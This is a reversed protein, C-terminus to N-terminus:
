STCSVVEGDVLEEVVTVVKTKINVHSSSSGIVSTEIDVASSKVAYVTDDELLRHYEAIEMELRTKIDLLARYEQGSRETDARIQTLQSELSTVSAQLGMLVAGYRAEMEGLNAELSSKMSYLSQMELELDRATSQGSKLEVSSTQLVETSTSVKQQVEEAKTQFWAEADRRNKGVLAEYQERVEAIVHTLDAAPAAEVEVQIQGSMQSQLSLMEENRHEKLYALDDKLGQLQMELDSKELSFDGMMRKLGSIDAEVSQRSGLEYEFKIRFDDAAVRTNDVQLALETVAATAALIQTRIDDITGQHTSLDRTNITIHNLGWEKIQLELKTNAEELTRVKDLYQSLRSNLNQMTQQENASNFGGDGGAGADLSFAGFGMGSGGGGGGGAGFSMGSGGGGGGGAGFGGSMSIRRTGSSFGASSIRVGQGGAGGYVSGSRQSSLGQRGGSRSSAYGGMSAGSGLGMSGHRYLTTM